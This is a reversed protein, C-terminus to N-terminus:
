RRELGLAVEMTDLLPGFWGSWMREENIKRMARRVEQSDFNREILLKAAAEIMANEFPKCMECLWGAMVIPEAGIAEGADNRLVEAGEKNHEIRGKQETTDERCEVCYPGLDVKRPEVRPEAVTITTEIWDGPDSTGLKNAMLERFEALKKEMEEMTREVTPVTKPM